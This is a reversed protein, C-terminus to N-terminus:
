PRYDAAFNLRIKPKNLKYLLKQRHLPHFDIFFHAYRRIKYYNQFLIFYIHFLLSEFRGKTETQVCPCKM